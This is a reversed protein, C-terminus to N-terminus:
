GSRAPHRPPAPEPLEMEPLAGSPTDDAIPLCFRFTTGEGEVSEVTIEGGMAEVLQKTLYLGLGTGRIGADSHLRSFKEFLRDRSAEPIGLGEDSISVEITDGSRGVSVTVAGGDPSYKVANSLLNAAVQRVRLRDALALPLDPEIQLDLRHDDSALVTQEAVAIITDSIQVPVLSYQLETRESKTADLVEDMLTTLHTTNRKITRLFEARKEPPLSDGHRELIDAFGAIATMPTRLEHTLIGLFDDKIEDLERLERITREETEALHANEIAVTAQTGLLRLTDYEESLLIREADRSVLGVLGILAIGRRIPMVIVQRAEQDVSRCVDLLVGHPDVATPGELTGALESLQESVLETGDDADPGLSSRRVWKDGARLELVFGADVGMLQMGAAIIGDFVGSTRREATINAGLSALSRLRDTEDVLRRMAVDLRSALIGVGMAVFLLIGVGWPIAGIWAAPDERTPLRLVQEITYAGAAYVWTGMSGRFQERMAGEIIPFTALPWMRTDEDFGFLVMVVVVCTTDLATAVVGWRRLAEADNGRTMRMSVLNTALLVAAVGFAVPWRPFPLPGGASPTFLAFQLFAFPIALWRM